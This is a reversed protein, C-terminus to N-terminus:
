AGIKSDPTNELLLVDTGSAYYTGPETLIAMMPVARGVTSDVQPELRREIQTVHHQTSSDFIQLQALAVPPYIQRVLSDWLTPTEYYLKV